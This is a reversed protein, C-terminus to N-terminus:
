SQQQLMVILFERVIHEETDLTGNWFLSSNTSIVVSFNIPGPCLSACGQWLRMDNGGVDYAYPVASGKARKKEWLDERKERAPRRWCWGILLSSSCSSKLRKGLKGLRSNVVFVSWLCLSFNVFYTKIPLYAIRTNMNKNIKSYDTKVSSTAHCKTGYICM